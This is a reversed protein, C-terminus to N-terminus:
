RAARFGILGSAYTPVQTDIAFVGASKGSALDGGRVLAGPGAATDAGALCNDDFTEFLGALCNTSLPVWDAVWEYFNGVMDFAGVDSVCGATGTPGPGVANVVCPAGDPTGLAAAQWEANTPLRKGANRAAAAAQFWTLFRSPTVGAVSVAYLNVCGNGTDPCSTGYDDSAEGRRTAGVQLEALTVTGARIKAILAADTTEWVSAEYKGVCGSGVKVSDPPCGSLAAVQANVVDALKKLFVAMQGRTVPQEPCFLPPALQCGSTIGNNVLFDVFDHAFYGDSVDPFNHSAQAVPASVMGLRAGLYGSTFVVLVLLLRGVLQRWAGM